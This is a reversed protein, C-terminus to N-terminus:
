REFVLGCHYPPLEVTQDFSFESASCVAERTEEPTM